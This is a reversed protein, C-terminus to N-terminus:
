ASLLSCNFDDTFPNMVKINAYYQGANLDESLVTYCELSEAAALISADWFSMRYTNCM